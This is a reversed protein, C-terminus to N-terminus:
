KGIAHVHILSKDYMKHSRSNIEVVVGVCLCLQTRTGEVECLIGTVIIWGDGHKM